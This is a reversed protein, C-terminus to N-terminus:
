LQICDLHQAFSMICCQMYVNAVQKHTLNTHETDGTRFFDTRADRKYELM